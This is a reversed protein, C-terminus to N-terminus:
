NETSVPTNDTVAEGAVETTAEAPPTVKKVVPKKIPKKKGKAKKVSKSKAKKAIKAVQVQTEAEPQAVMPIENTEDGIPAETPESIARQKKPVRGTKKEKVPATRNAITYAMTIGLATIYLKKDEPNEIWGKKIANSINNTLNNIKSQDKRNTEEYKLVIDDRTITKKGFESAYLAYTLIWEREPGPRNSGCVEELTPMKSLNVEVPAEETKKTLRAKAVKPEKVKAVKPEKVKAIKAPKPEKVKAQKPEKAKVAKEKVVKTEVSAIPKAKAEKPPKPAIIKKAPAVTKEKKINVPAAEAPAEPVAAAKKPQRTRKPKAEPMPEPQTEPLATPLPKEVKKARERKAKKEEVVVPASEIKIEEQQVVKPKRGRKKKEAVAIEPKATESIVVAKAEAAIPSGTLFNELGARRIENFQEIVIESKGELEINILGNSVKIKFISEAM